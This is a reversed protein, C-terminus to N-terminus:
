ATPVEILRLSALEVVVPAREGSSQFVKLLLIFRVESEDVPPIVYLLVVPSNESRNLKVPSRELTPFVIESAGSVPPVRVHNVVPCSVNPSASPHSIWDESSKQSLAVPLSPIPVFEGVSVRVIEPVREVLASAVILPTM